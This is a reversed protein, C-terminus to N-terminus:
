DIGSTHSHFTSYVLQRTRLLYTSWVLVGPTLSDDTPRDLYNPLNEIPALAEDGRPNRSPSENHKSSM